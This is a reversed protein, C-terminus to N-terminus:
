NDESLMNYVKLETLVTQMQMLLNLNKKITLGSYGLYQQSMFRCINYYLPKNWNFLSRVDDVSYYLSLDKTLVGKIDIVDKPVHYHWSEISASM